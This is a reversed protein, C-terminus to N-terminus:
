RWREGEAAFRLRMRGKWGCTLCERFVTTALIPLLCAAMGPENPGRTLAHCGPCLPADPLRQLYRDVLTPFLLLFAAGFFLLALLM